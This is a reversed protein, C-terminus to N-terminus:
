GGAAKEGDGSEGYGNSGDGEGEKSGLPRQAVAKNSERM